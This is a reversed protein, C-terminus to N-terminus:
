AVTSCAFDNYWNRSLKMDGVLSTHESQHKERLVIKTRSDNYM